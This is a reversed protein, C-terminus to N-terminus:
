CVTHWHGLLEVWVLGGHAAQLLGGGGRGRGGGGGVVLAQAQVCQNIIEIIHLTGNTPRFFNMIVRGKLHRYNIQFDSM